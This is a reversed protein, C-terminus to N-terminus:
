EELTLYLNGDADEDVLVNRVPQAEKLRYSLTPPPITVKGEPTVARDAYSRQLHSSFVRPVLERTKSLMLITKKAM